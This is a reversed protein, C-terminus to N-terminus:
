RLMALIESHRLTRGIQRDKRRVLCKRLKKHDRIRQLVEVDRIENVKNEVDEQPM